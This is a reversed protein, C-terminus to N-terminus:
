HRSVAGADAAAQLRAVAERSAPDDSQDRLVLRHWALAEDPRGMRERLDALRHYLDSHPAVGLTKEADAEKYLPLIQGRAEHAARVKLAFAEAEEPRGAAKLVRSLQYLVQSDFPDARWARLYGDAATSWDRRGQAIAARHREFRPDVSLGPPVKALAEALEDPRRSEHLGQLLADWTEPQGAQRRVQDRLISVGEDIRNFRILALSLAIATHFDEPHARVLPELTQIRSDPGIPQADQRILELLLQARDRPDPEIAYQAMGLRQAEVRRGQIYYLGLLDWAAEPVLPELRLAEKWAREAQDNRGLSSFAKGENLRVIALTGRDATRIRALHDLALRPKQDDRDLAVQAMLLNAQISEPRSRLYDRLREEVEDFRRAKLLPALGDLSPAPQLRARLVFGAGSAVFAAFLLALAIDRLGPRRVTM